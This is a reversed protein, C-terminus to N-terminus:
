AIYCTVLASQYVLRESGANLTWGLLTTGLLGGGAGTFLSLERVVGGAERARSFTNNENGAM